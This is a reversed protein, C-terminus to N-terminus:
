ITSCYSKLWKYGRFIPRSGTYISGLVRDANKKSFWSREDPSLLIVIVYQYPSAVAMIERISFRDLVEIHTFEFDLIQSKNLMSM